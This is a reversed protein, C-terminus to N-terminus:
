QVSKETWWRQKEFKTTATAGAKQRGSESCSNGNNSTNTSYTYPEHATPMEEVPWNFFLPYFPVHEDCISCLKALEFVGYVYYFAFGVSTIVCIEISCSMTVTVKKKEDAEWKKPERDMRIWDNFLFDYIRKFYEISFFFFFSKIFKSCNTVIKQVLQFIARRIYRSILDESKAMFSTKQHWTKSFLILSFNTMICCFITHILCSFMRLDYLRTKKVKLFRVSLQSFFGNTNVLPHSHTHTHKEIVKSM